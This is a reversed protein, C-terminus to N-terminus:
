YIWTTRVEQTLTSTSNIVAVDVNPSARDRDEVALDKLGYRNFEAGDFQQEANLTIPPQLTPAETTYDKGVFTVICFFM